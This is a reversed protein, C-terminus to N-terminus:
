LGWQCFTELMISGSQEREGLWFLDFGFLHGGEMGWDQVLCVFNVNWHFGDGSSIFLEAVSSDKNSAIGFLEPFVDKLPTGWM